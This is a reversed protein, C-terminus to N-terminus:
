KTNGTTDVTNSTEGLNKANGTTDVTNKDEEPPLPLGNENANGLSGTDPMPPTNSNSAIYETGKRKGRRSQFESPCKQLILTAVLGNPLAGNQVPSSIYNKM